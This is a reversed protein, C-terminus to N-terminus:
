CFVLVVAQAIIMIKPMCITELTYIVQNLKSLIGYINSQIIERKRSQCKTYYLFRILLSDPSGSSSQDHYKAYLNCGIGQGMYIYIYINGTFHTNDYTLLQIHIYTTM